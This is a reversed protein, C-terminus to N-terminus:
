FKGCSIEDSGDPCDPVENCLLKVSICKSDNCKFEGVSCSPNVSLWCKKNM